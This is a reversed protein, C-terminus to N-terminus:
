HCVSERRSKNEWYMWKLITYQFIRKEDVCTMVNERYMKACFFSLPKELFTDREKRSFIVM